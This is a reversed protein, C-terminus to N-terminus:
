AQLITRIPVFNNLSCCESRQLLVHISIAILNMKLKLNQAVQEFTHMANRENPMHLNISM